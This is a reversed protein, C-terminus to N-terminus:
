WHIIKERLTKIRQEGPWAARMATYVTIAENFRQNSQVTKAGEIGQTWRHICLEMDRPHDDRDVEAMTQKILSEIRATLSVTADQTYQTDIREFASISEKYMGLHMHTEGDNILLNGVNHDIWIPVHEDTPREFFAEHAKGLADLANEKQGDHARYTALGAYIYSSVLQPIPEEAPRL